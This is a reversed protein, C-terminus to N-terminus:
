LAAERHASEGRRLCGLGELTTQVAEDLPTHPEKGLMEVLQANDLRVPVKWLYAMENMERLSMSFPSVLRLLWWPFPKLAPKIGGHRVVVRQVARGLERGDPDWHGGMHFRAFAPLANQRALLRVMTQAVDPLYAYQHAVGGGPLRVSSVPRGPKVMGQSFWTSGKRPGFFDGARVILVRVAGEAAARELRHEMEVRVSGKRTRPRQPADERILPFTEPGYNYVNGPLVITAGLARAAAITNDLMPLGQSEWHRYGPPNVAHVIVSCDTAAAAVDAGRLADGEIWHIGESYREPAGLGRKLARVQWGEDRLQSAVEGGIGGSAGLVLVTRNTQM